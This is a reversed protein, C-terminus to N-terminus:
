AGSEDKVMIVKSKQGEIDRSVALKKNIAYYFADYVLEKGEKTTLKLKFGDFSWTGSSQQTKGEYAASCTFTMDDNFTVRALNFKKVMDPPEVSQSRWTGYLPQACGSLVAIVGLSLALCLIRRM